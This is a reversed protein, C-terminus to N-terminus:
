YSSLLVSKKKKSTKFQYFSVEKQLFYSYVSFVLQPFWSSPCRGPWPAKFDGFHDQTLLQALFHQFFHTKLSAKSTWCWPSSYLGLHFGDLLDRGRNASVGIQGAEMGETFSIPDSTMSASSKLQLQTVNIVDSHQGFKIGRFHRWLVLANCLILSWFSPLRSYPKWIAM